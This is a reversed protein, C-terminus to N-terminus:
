FFIKIKGTNQKDMREMKLPLRVTLNSKAQVSSTKMVKAPDKHKKNNYEIFGTNDDKHVIVKRDIKGLFAKDYECKM